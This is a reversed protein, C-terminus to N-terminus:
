ITFVRKSRKLDTHLETVTEIDNKLLEVRTLASALQLFASLALEHRGHESKPPFVIVRSLKTKAAPNAANAKLM